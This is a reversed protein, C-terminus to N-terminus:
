IKEKYEPVIKLLCVEPRNFIRVMRKKSLGRSVIHLGNKLNYAGGAHNPFVGQHPAYVGNIFPPLRWQGGHAQGSFVVDFGIKEYLGYEEPRHSLLVTLSKEKSIGDAAAEIKRRWNQIKENGTDKDEAFLQSIKRERRNIADYTFYPDAAGCILMEGHNVTVIGEGKVPHLLKIGIKDLEAFLGDIGDIFREHNGLVAYCPAIKVAGEFFHRAPNADSLIGQCKGRDEVMDGTIVIIDPSVSRILSILKEEKNGFRSEHLDSVHVISIEESVKASRFFYRRLKLKSSTATLLLVLVATIVAGGVVYPIM